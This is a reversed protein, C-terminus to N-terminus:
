KSNLSSASNIFSSEEDITRDRMAMRVHKAADKEKQFTLKALDLYVHETAEEATPRRSPNLSMLKEILDRASNAIGGRAEGRIM